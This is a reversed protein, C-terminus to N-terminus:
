EGDYAVLSTAIPDLLPKWSAYSNAPAQTLVAYGNGNNTMFFTDVKHLSV